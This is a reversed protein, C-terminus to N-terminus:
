TFTILYEPYAQADHLIVYVSPNSVIDVLSDYLDSPNGLSRPPLTKMGPAGATWRGALIRAQLMMMSRSVNQRCYSASLSPDTAFYVGHGLVTGHKGAYSRDFGNQCIAKCSEVSTGHFVTREKAEGPGNKKELAKKRVEYAYHLFTNQVREIKQITHRSNSRTFNRQVNNFEKSGVPVEVMNVQPSFDDWTAPLPFFCRNIEKRTSELLKNKEETEKRTSELLKNKEETEKRASELLRDKEESERKTSELIRDKEELQRRLSVVLNLKEEIEDERSSKLLSQITMCVVQVHQAFGEMQVTDAEVSRSI